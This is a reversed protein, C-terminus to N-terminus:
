TAVDTLVGQRRSEDACRIGVVLRVPLEFSFSSPYQAALWLEMQM